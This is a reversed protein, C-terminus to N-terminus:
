NTSKEGAKPKDGARPEPIELNGPGESGPVFLGRVPQGGSAGRPRALIRSVGTKLNVEAYEGNLQNAGRTLKVDGSLTVLEKLADYQARKALAHEQQTTVVVDGTAEVEKLTLKGGEGEVFMATLVDARLVKDDKKATANGLARAIKEGHRYELKDRATVEQGDALIRLNNGTLEFMGTDLNYVGKEGFVSQKATAIRVSGIAEVKWIQNEDNALKRYHARLLDAELSIDGRVVKADGRAVYVQEDQRWEIGDRADITVPDEGSGMLQNIDQASASLATLGMLLLGPWISMRLPRWGNM